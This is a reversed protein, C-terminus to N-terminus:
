ILKFGMQFLSLKCFQHVTKMKRYAKAVFENIIFSGDSECDSVTNVIIKSVEFSFNKRYTVVEYDDSNLSKIIGSKESMVVIKSLEDARSHWENARAQAVRKNDNDLSYNQGATLANRRVNPTSSYLTM